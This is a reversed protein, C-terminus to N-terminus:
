KNEEPPLVVGLLPQTQSNKKKKSIRVRYSLFCGVEYIAIGVAVGAAFSCILLLLTDADM